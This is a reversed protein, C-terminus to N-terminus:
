PSTGFPHNAGIKRLEQHLFLGEINFDLGDNGDDGGFEEGGDVGYFTLKVPVNATPINATPYLSRMNQYSWRNYPVGFLANSRSNSSVQILFSVIM